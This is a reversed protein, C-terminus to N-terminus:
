KMKKTIRDLGFFVYGMAGAIIVVALLMIVGGVGGSRQKKELRRGRRHIKKGKRLAEEEQCFPCKRYTDSYEEGCKPCLKNAM